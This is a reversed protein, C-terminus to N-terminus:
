VAGTLHVAFWIWGVALVVLGLGFARFRWFVRNVTLHVGAHAFRAIVFLWMLVLTVYNVGNTVYLALCLVFFLVPAEFQNMLNAAATASEGPEVSRTRFQGAKVEGTRIAQRRRVALVGYVLYTLLVQALVPWFIATQNM